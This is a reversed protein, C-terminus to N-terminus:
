NSFTYLIVIVTGLIYHEASSSIGSEVFPLFQFPLLSHRPNCTLETVEEGWDKHSVLKRLSDTWHIQGEIQVGSGYLLPRM